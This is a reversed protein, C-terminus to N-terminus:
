VIEEQGPYRERLKKRFSQAFTWLLKQLDKYDEPLPAAALEMELARDADKLLIACLRLLLFDNYPLGNRRM